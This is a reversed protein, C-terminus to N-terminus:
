PWFNDHFSMWVSHMARLGCTREELSREIRAAAPLQRPGHRDLGAIQIFKKAFCCCDKAFIGIDALEGGQTYPLPWNSWHPDDAESANACLPGCAHPM